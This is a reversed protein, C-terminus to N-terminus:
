PPSMPAGGRNYRIVKKEFLLIGILSFIIIPIITIMHSM